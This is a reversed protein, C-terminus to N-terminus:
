TGKGIGGGFASLIGGGLATLGAAVPGIGPIAAMFPAAGLAVGGTKQLAGPEEPKNIEEKALKQLETFRGGEGQRLGKPDLYLPNKSGTSAVGQNEPDMM